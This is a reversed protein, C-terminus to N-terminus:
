QSFYDRYLSKTYQDFLITQLERHPFLPRWVHVKTYQDLVITHLSLHPFLPKRAHVKHESRPSHCAAWSPSCYDRNCTYRNLVITHIERHLFFYDGYMSKTYRSQVITNLVRNPFTTETCPSQTGTSFFSMCSVIPFFYDRYMSKTSRDLLIVHLESHPFLLIREHVKYVPRPCHYTAWLPSLYDRYM